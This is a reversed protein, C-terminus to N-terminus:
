RAELGSQLGSEQGRRDHNAMEALKGTGDPFDIIYHRVTEEKYRIEVGDGPGGPCGGRGLRGCLIPLSQFVGYIM